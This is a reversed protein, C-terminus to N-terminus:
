VDFVGVTRMDTIGARPLDKVGLDTEKMINHVEGAVPIKGLGASDIGGAVFERERILKHSPHQFVDGRVLDPVRKSERM